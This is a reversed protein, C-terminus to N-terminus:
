LKLSRLPFLILPNTALFVCVKGSVSSPIIHALIPDVGDEDDTDDAAEGDEDDEGRGGDFSAGTLPCSMGDRRFM